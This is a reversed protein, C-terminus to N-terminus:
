AGTLTKEAGVASPTIQRVRVVRTNGRHQITLHIAPAPFPRQLREPWEVFLVVGPEVSLQDLELAAEESVFRLRYADVHVARRWRGRKLRYDNRLSFTPSTVRGTHGLSRLAGRVFVTKGSGLPGSLLFVSVAETALLRRALQAM